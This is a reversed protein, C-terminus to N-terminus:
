WEIGITYGTWNEGFWKKYYQSTSSYVPHTCYHEAKFYTFLDQNIKINIKAGIRYTSRYPQYALTKHRDMQVRDAVWIDLFKIEYGLLIDSYYDNSEEVYGVELHGFMGAMAGSSILLFLLLYKIM